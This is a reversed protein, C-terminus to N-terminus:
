EDSEAATESAPPPLPLTVSTQCFPLQLLFVTYEQNLKQRHAKIFNEWAALYRGTFAPTVLDAYDDVNEFCESDNLAQQLEKVAQYRSEDQSAIGAIYMRSLLPMRNVPLLADNNWTLPTQSLPIESSEKTSLPNEQLTFPTAAAPPTEQKARRTATGKREGEQPNETGPEATPKNAENFSFEDAMYICWETRTNGRTANQWSKITELFRKSRYGIEAIPLMRRQQYGIQHYANELRPIADLCTNIAKERTELEQRLIHTNQNFKYLTIALLLTFLLWAGFLWPYADARRKREALQEPILSIAAPAEGLGQLALGYAITLCPYVGSISPAGHVEAPCQRLPL